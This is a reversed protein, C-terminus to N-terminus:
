AYSEVIAPRTAGLASAIALLGERVAGDGVGSIDKELKIGMSHIADGVAASRKDYGYGGAHGSGSFYLGKGAVWICCYVVSSNSSRGMYLRCDIVMESTMVRYTNDKVSDLDFVHYARILEKERIKGIGNSNEKAKSIDALM